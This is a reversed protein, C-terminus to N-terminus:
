LCRHVMSRTDSSTILKDQCWKRIENESIGAKVCGNIAEEYFDELAKDVFIM